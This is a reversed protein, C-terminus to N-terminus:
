GGWPRYMCGRRGEDEYRSLEAGSLILKLKL